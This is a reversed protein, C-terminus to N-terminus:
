HNQSLIAAIAQDSIDTEVTFHSKPDVSQIVSNAIDKKKIELVQAAATSFSHGNDHSLSQM